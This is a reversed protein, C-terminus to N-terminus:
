RQSAQQTELTANRLFGSPAQLASAGGLQRHAALLEQLRADRVMVGQASQVLVQQGSATVTTTSSTAAIGSGATTPLLSLTNWGIAGVAVLGAFGAALKWRFNGDNAASRPTIPRSVVVHPRHVALETVPLSQNACLPQERALQLKVKSLFEADAGACATSPSRLVEGILQYANWECGTESEFATSGNQSLLLPLEDRSLEGDKLASLLEFSKVSDKMSM